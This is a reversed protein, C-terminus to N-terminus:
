SMPASPSAPSDTCSSEIARISGSKHTAAARAAHVANPESVSAGALEAGSAASGEAM